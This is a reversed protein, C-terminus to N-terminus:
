KLLNKQLRRAESQYPGQQETLAQLLIDAEENKGSKILALARYWNLSQSLQHNFGPELVEVKELAQVEMGAEISALLFYLQALLNDQDEAMLGSMVEMTKSYEGLQYYLIGSEAQGRTGQNIALLVPDEGPNYFRTFLRQDGPNSRLVALLIALSGALLLPLYWWTRFGRVKGPNNSNSDEMVASLVQKFDDLDRKQLQDKILGYALSTEDFHERFSPDSSLREEFSSADEASMDGSLYKLFLDVNNM